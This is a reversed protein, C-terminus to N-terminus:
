VECCKSMSQNTAKEIPTKLRIVGCEWNLLCVENDSDRSKVPIAKYKAKSDLSACWPNLPWVTDAHLCTDFIILTLPASHIRRGFQALLLDAHLCTDNLCTISLPASHARRGFGALAIPLDTHLYTVHLCIISLPAGHARRGFGALAMPLDAHM